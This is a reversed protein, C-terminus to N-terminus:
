LAAVSFMLVCPLAGMSPRMALMLLQSVLPFFVSNWAYMGDDHGILCFMYTPIFVVGSRYMSFKYRSPMAQTRFTRCTARRVRFEGVPGSQGVRLSGIARM